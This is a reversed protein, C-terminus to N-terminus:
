FVMKVLALPMKFSYRETTDLIMNTAPFTIGCVNRPRIMSNTLTIIQRGTMIM